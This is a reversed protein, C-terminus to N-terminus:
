GRGPNVTGVIAQGGPQVSVHTVVIEQRTQGKGRGHNFAELLQAYTRAAKLALSLYMRRGEPTQDPHLARRIMDASAHQTTVLLAVTMAESTNAPGIGGVLDLIAGIEESSPARSGAVVNVIQSLISAAVDVDGVGLVTCLREPNVAVVARAPSPL